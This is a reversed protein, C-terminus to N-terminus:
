WRGELTYTIGYKSTNALLWNHLEILRNNNTTTAQKVYQRYLKDERSRKESYSLSSDRDVAEAADRYKKDLKARKAKYENSTSNRFRNYREIFNRGKEPTFDPNKSVVYIGEKAVARYMGIDYKNFNALDKVSFTGGLGDEGRPHIHTFVSGENMAKIPTRVSGKGGRNESLIMGDKDVVTAYEIKNKERKKEFARITADEKDNMKQRTDSYILPKELQTVSGDYDMFVTKASGLQAATKGLSGM